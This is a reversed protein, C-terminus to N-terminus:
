LIFTCFFSPHHTEGDEMFIPAAIIGIIGGGGHIAVADVPDDVGLRLILRSLGIFIQSLELSFEANVQFPLCLGSSFLM